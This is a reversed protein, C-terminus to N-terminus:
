SLVGGDAVARYGAVINCICIAGCAGGAITLQINTNPPIYLKGTWGLSAESTLNALAGDLTDFIVAPTADDTHVSISTLAGGSIDAYSMRFALTELIVAQDTGTFLTYTTAAQNLDFTTPTLQLKGASTKDALKGIAELSHKTNDFNSIDGDIAMIHALISNSVVSEPLTTVGDPVLFLKAISEHIILVYDGVEPTDSYPMDVTIAGDDADYSSIKQIEGEPAATNAQIIQCFYADNLLNTGLGQISDIKFQTTSIETTIEGYFAIGGSSTIKSHLKQLWFSSRTQGSDNNGIM